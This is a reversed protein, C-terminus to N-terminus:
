VAFVNSGTAKVSNMLFTDVDMTVGRCDSNYAELAIGVASFDININYITSGNCEFVTGLHSTGSGNINLNSLKVGEKTRVIPSATGNEVNMVIHAPFSHTVATDILAGSSAELLRCDVTVTIFNLYLQGGTVDFVLGSCARIFTHVGFCYTICRELEWITAPAAGSDTNVSFEGIRIQCGVAKILTTGAPLATTVIGIDIDPMVCNEFTFPTETTSVTNTGFESTIIVNAFNGGVFHIPADLVYDQELSITVTYKNKPRHQQAALADKLTEFERGAGVFHEEDSTPAANSPTGGGGSSSSGVPIWPAAPNMGTAMYLGLSEDIEKILVAMGVRKGSASPDNIPHSLNSLKTKSVSSLEALQTLIPTKKMVGKDFHDTM